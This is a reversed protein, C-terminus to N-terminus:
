AEAAPAVAGVRFGFPKLLKEVTEVTPSGKGSEIDALVRPAVGCLKAYEAQSKRAILRMNRLLQPIGAGARPVSETLQRRLAEVEDRSLKRHVRKMM